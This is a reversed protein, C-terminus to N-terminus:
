NAKKEKTAGVKSARVRRCTVRERERRKESSGGRLISPREPGEQVQCRMESGRWRREVRHGQPMHNPRAASSLSTDIQPVSCVWREDGGERMAERRKREKANLESKM